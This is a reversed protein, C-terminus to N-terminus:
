FEARVGMSVWRTQLDINGWINQGATMGRVMWNSINSDMGFQGSRIFQMIRPLVDVVIYKQQSPDLFPTGLLPIKDDVGFPTHDSFVTLAPHQKKNRCSIDHPSDEGGCLEMLALQYFLTQKAKRDVLILALLVSGQNVDCKQTRNVLEYQASVEAYLSLKKLDGINKGQAASQTASEEFHNEALNPHLFFDFERARGNDLKCPLEVSSQNIVVDIFKNQEFSIDVFNLGSESRYTLRPSYRIKNFISLPGTPIHWATVTWDAKGDSSTYPENIREDPVRISFAHPQSFLENEQAIVSGISWYLLM